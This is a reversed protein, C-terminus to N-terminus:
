RNTLREAVSNELIGIGDIEMRVIDGNILFKPPSFGLGVGSPTGTAIIDGPQLTIGESLESILAEVPFIMNRTNSNQRLEGNVYTRLGLELPMKLTDAPVIWPGMVAYGDLSKGRFWQVHRNQLTRSSLENLITIGFVHAWVEDPRLNSAEKGIIVALEVEYDVAADLTFHGRIVDSPGLVYVARKSFYHPVPQDPGKAPGDELELIHDMYNKGVCLLDHPPYPIPATLKMGSLDRTLAKEDPVPVTKGSRIFELLSNADIGLEHFLAARDGIALGPQLVGDVEATFFKM